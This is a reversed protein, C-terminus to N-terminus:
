KKAEMWETMKSVGEMGNRTFFDVKSEGAWMENVMPGGIIIKVKDQLGAQKLANITEAMSTASTTMLGSIAIIDAWSAEEVFKDPTVDVGLNHVDFGAGEAFVAVLDKGMGHIDGYATGISLKGIKPREGGLLKPKIYKMCEQFVDSSVVVEPLFYEGNGYKEGVIDMGKGMDEIITIPDEGAALREKVIQVAKEDYNAIAETLRRRNESL